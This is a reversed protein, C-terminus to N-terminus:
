RPYQIPNQYEQPYSHLQHLLPGKFFLIQFNEPIHLFVPVGGKGVELFFKAFVEIRLYEFLDHLLADNLQLVLADGERLLSVLVGTLQDTGVSKGLSENVIDQSYLELLTGALEFMDEIMVQHVTDTGQQSM